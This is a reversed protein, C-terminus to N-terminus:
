SVENTEETIIKWARIGQHPASTKNCRTVWLGPNSYPRFALSFKYHIPDSAFAIDCGHRAWETEATEGAAFSKM